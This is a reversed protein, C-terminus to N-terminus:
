PRPSPGLALVLQALSAARAFAFSSQALSHTKKTTKKVVDTNSAM